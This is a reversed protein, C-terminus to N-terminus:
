IFGKMYKSPRNLLEEILATKSCWEIKGKYGQKRLFIRLLIMKLWRPSLFDFVGQMTIILLREPEYRPDELYQVIMAFQFGFQQKTQTNNILVRLAKELDKNWDVFYTLWM